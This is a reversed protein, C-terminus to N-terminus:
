AAGEAVPEPRQNAEDTAQLRDNAGREAEALLEVAQAAEDDRSARHVERGEVAAFFGMCVSPLANAHVGGEFGDLLPAGWCGSGGPRMM